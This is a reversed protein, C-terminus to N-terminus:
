DWDDDFVRRIEGKREMGLREKGYDEDLGDYFLGDGFEEPEDKLEVDPTRDKRPESWPRDSLDFETGCSDCLSADPPLTERCNPCVHREVVFSRGCKPCSEMDGHVIAGCGPCQYEDYRPGLSRRRKLALVTIIIILTLFIVALVILILNSGGGGKSEFPPIDDGSGWEIEVDGKRAKIPVDEPIFPEKFIFTAMGEEDTKARYTKDDYTFSVSANAVPNGDPDRVPGINVTFGEDAIVDLVPLPEKGCIWSVTVGGKRVTVVTGDPISPVLLKFTAFGLQDTVACYPSGDLVFTVEAGEVLDFDPNMVPGLIVSYELPSGEVLITVNIYFVLSLNQCIIEIGLPYKSPNLSSAYIKMSVNTKEGPPIVVSKPYGVYGSLVGIFSFEVNMTIRDHNTITIQFSGEKGQEIKIEESELEVSIIDKMDLYEVLTRNMYYIIGTEQIDLEWFNAKYGGKRVHIEYFGATANIMDLCYRGRHDTVANLSGGDSTSNVSIRHLSVMADEVPEGTVGHEIYGLILVTSDLIELTTNFGQIGPGIELDIERAVFGDLSFRFRHEGVPIRELKYNFSGNDSITDHFSDEHGVMEVLVGRLEVSWDPTYVRGTLVSRELRFTTINKELVEGPGLEDIESVTDNYYFSGLELVYPGSGPRVDTFEFYGTENTVDFSSYDSATATITVDVGAVPSITGDDVFGRVVARQDGDIVGFPYPHVSGNQLHLFATYNGAETMTCRFLISGNHQTLHFLDGLNTIDQNTDMNRITVEIELPTNGTSWVWLELLFEEDVELSETCNGFLLEWRTINQISVSLNKTSNVFGPSTSNLYARITFSSESNPRWLFIARKKDGTLIDGLTNNLGSFVENTDKTIKLSIEITGDALLKNGINSIEVSVPHTTNTSYAGEPISSMSSIRINGIEGGPDDYVNVTINMEDGGGTGNIKVNITHVKGHVFTFEDTIMSFNGQNINFPGDSSSQQGTGNHVTVNLYADTVQDTALLWVTMNWSGSPYTNNDAKPANLHIFNISVRGNRENDRGIACSLDVPPFVTLLLFLVVLYAMTNCRTKEM